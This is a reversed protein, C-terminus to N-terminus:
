NANEAAIFHVWVVTVVFFSHNKALTAGNYVVARLAFFELSHRHQYKRLRRQRHRLRRGRKRQRKVRDKTYNGRNRNVYKEVTSYQRVVQVVNLEM